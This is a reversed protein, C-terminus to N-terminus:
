YIGTITYRNRYQPNAKYYEEVLNQLEICEQKTGTIKIYAGYKLSLTGIQRTHHLTNLLTADYFWGEIKYLDDYMYRIKNM